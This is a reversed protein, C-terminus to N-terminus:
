FAHSIENSYQSENGFYDYATVSFYWTTDSLGGLEAETYTRNVNAVYSYDRSGKGYYLRYGALDELPSGDENTTPAAWGLMISNAGGDGSYFTNGYEDVGSGGGGCAM